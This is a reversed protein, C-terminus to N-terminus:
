LKKEDKSNVANILRAIKESDLYYFFDSQAQSIGLVSGSPSPFLHQIIATTYDQPCDKDSTPIINEPPNTIQRHCLFEERQGGYNGHFRINSLVGSKLALLGMLPSLYKYESRFVEYLGSIETEDIDAYLLPLFLFQLSFIFVLLKSFNFLKIINVFINM